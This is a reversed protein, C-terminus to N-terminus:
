RGFKVSNDQIWELCYLNDDRCGLVVSNGLMVPSSFTDAPLKAECKLLAKHRRDVDMAVGKNHSLRCDLLAVVGDNSCSCISVQSTMAESCIASDKEKGTPLHM